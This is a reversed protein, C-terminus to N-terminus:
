ARIGTLDWLDSERTEREWHHIKFFGCRMPWVVRTCTNAIIIIVSMDAPQIGCKMPGDRPQRARMDPIIVRIGVFGLRPNGEDTSRM